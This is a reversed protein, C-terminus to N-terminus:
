DKCVFSLITEGRKLIMKREELSGLKKPNM